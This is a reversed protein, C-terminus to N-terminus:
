MTKITKKKGKPSKASARRATPSMTKRYLAGVMTGYVIHFLVFGYVYYPGYAYMFVGPHEMYMHHTMPANFFHVVSTFGTLLGAVALHVLSVMFGVKPGAEGRIEFVAAYLSTLIISIACHCALGVLFATTGSFGFMTGMMLEINMLKMAHYGKPMHRVLFEVVTGMLGTILGITLIQSFPSADLPEILDLPPPMSSSTSKPSRRFDPSRTQDLEAKSLNLINPPMAAPKPDKARRFDPSRTQDESLGLKSAIVDHAHEPTPSKKVDKAHRFDPSRIGSIDDVSTM